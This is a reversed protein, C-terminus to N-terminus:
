RRGRNDSQFPRARHVNSVTTHLALGLVDRCNRWNRGRDERRLKTGQRRAVAFRYPLVCELTRLSKGSILSKSCSPVRELGNCTQMSLSFPILSSFLLRLATSRTGVQEVQGGGQNVEEVNGIGPWEGGGGGS